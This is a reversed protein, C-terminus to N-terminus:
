FISPCLVQACDLVAAQQNLPYHANLSPLM